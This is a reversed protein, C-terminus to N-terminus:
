KNDRHFKNIVEALLEWPARAETPLAYFPTRYHTEGLSQRIQQQCEMLYEGTIPYCASAALRKVTECEPCKEARYKGHSKCLKLDM